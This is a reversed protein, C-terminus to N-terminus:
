ENKESEMLEHIRANLANMTNAQEPTMFAGQAETAEAVALLEDVVESILGVYDCTNGGYRAALEERLWGLPEPKPDHETM